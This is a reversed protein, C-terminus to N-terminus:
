GKYIGYCSIKTDPMKVLSMGREQATSITGKSDLCEKWSSSISCLQLGGKWSNAYKKM